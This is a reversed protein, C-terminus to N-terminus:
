SHGQCRWVAACRGGLGAGRGCLEQLVVFGNPEQAVVRSEGPQVPDVLADRETGGRPLEIEAYILLLTM